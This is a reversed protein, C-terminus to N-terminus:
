RHEQARDDAKERGKDPGSEQERKAEQPDAKGQPATAQSRPAPV